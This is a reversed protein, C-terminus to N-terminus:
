SGPIENYCETVLFVEQEEEPVTELLDIYYRASRSRYQQHSRGATDILYSIMNRLNKWPM